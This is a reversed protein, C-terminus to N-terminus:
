ENEIEKIEKIMNQWTDSDFMKHTYYDIITAIRVQQNKSLNSDVYTTNINCNKKDKDFMVNFNIAKVQKDEIYDCEHGQSIDEILAILKNFVPKNILLDVLIVWAKNIDEKQKASLNDYNNTFYNTELRFKGKERNNKLSIVLEELDFNKTNM